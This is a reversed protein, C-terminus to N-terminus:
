GVPSIDCASWWWTQAKSQLVRVLYDSTARVAVVVHDDVPAITETVPAGIERSFMIPVNNLSRVKCELLYLKGNEVPFSLKVMNGGGNATAAGLVFYGDPDRATHSVYTRSDAQVIHAGAPSVPAKASVRTASVPPRPLPQVKFDALARNMLELRKTNPLNAKLGLQPAEIRLQKSAQIATAAPLKSPTDSQAFLSQCPLALALIAFAATSRM